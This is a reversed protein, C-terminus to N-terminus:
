FWGRARGLPILAIAIGILIILAVSEFVYPYIILSFGCILYLADHQRRGYALYVGGIAGFLLSIFISM